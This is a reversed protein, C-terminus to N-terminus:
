KFLVYFHYHGACAPEGGFGCYDVFYCVFLDAAGTPYGDRLVTVEEM